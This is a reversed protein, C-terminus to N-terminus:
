EVNREVQQIWRFAARVNYFDLRPSVIPWTKVCSVCCFRQPNTGTRSKNGVGSPASVTKVPNCSPPSFSPLNTSVEWRQELDVTESAMSLVYASEQKHIITPRTKADNGIYSHQLTCFEGVWDWLQILVGV